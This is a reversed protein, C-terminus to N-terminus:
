ETVLVAGERLLAHNPVVYEYDDSEVRTVLVTVEQVVGRRDGIEVQDGIGYPERLLLYVGASAARLLDQLAVGTLVVVGFAYAALLVILAGTAVGIQSAAVLAAVYVVSYKVMRPIIGIEPLKVGRLREGTWLEARDGLVFGAALIAAAVFLNPVFGTLRLWFIQTDLLRAVHLAAVIAVGYVLWSSLRAFISVTSTGLSRATREFYTGEAADDVGVAILLRRNLRGVLLGATVGVVLVVIAFVFRLEEGFFRTLDDLTVLPVFM